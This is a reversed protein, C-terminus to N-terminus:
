YPGDDGLDDSTVEEKQCKWVPEAAFVGPLKCKQVKKDRSPGAERDATLSSRNRAEAARACKDALEYLQMTTRVDHVAMKKCMKPDAVGNRPIKNRVQSFRQIFGRLTEGEKQRIANLNAITSPRDCTGKFNSIFRECLEDGLGM